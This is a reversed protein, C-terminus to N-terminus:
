ADNCIGIRLGTLLVCLDAGLLTKDVGSPQTRTKAVSVSPVCKVNAFPYTLLLVLAWEEGTASSGGAM